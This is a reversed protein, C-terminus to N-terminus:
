RVIIKTEWVSGMIAEGDMIIQPRLIKGTACMDQCEAFRASAIHYRGFSHIRFEEWLQRSFVEDDLLNVILADSLVTTRCRGTGAGQLQEEDRSFSIFSHPLLEPKLQSTAGAVHWKEFYENTAHYWYDM